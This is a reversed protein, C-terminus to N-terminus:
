IMDKAKNMNFIQKLNNRFRFLKVQFFKSTLVNNRRM